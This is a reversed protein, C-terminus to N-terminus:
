LGVKILSVGIAGKKIVPRMSKCVNPLFQHPLVFVLIDAERTCESLDPIAVVNQPLNVGPLYKPNEHSTNIIESLKRGDVQEEFVWMKVKPQYSPSKLVNTGIIKAITSGWNGSGIISISRLLPM